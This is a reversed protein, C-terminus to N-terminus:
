AARLVAASTAVGSAGTVLTAKCDPVQNVSTGRIQRVGELILNFGHVYAEALGGGSTLVPLAGDLELRGGETFPGGEGRRCFGYDELGTIVLPTFADYIQACDMDRPQLASRQWLLKACFVSTTEMAPTNNYNALHVPNPGSAQAVAHLLVPQQRLDRAREVSTVVCALAGDTELCCDYFTLPWGIPRGALYTEMDLPRDRMMAYPNRQAHKRAAIAVNGFHERRTGYEHMHRHAWMGIVDVPRVLGWPVHLAKDDRVLEREQAWPRSTKAGRNRARHCVVTTALGSTIAAAAHMLTACSAGGGYSIKDWWRLGEVGLRRAISVEHTSEMEFMSMGDVDEAELGADDLALQIAEVATDAIPRGIDKAFPLHGIGVIAVRDQIRRFLDDGVDAM